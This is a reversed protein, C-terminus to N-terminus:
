YSFVATNIVANLQQEYLEHCIPLNMEAVLKKAVGAQVAFRLIHLTMPATGNAFDHLEDIAEQNPQTVFSSDCERCEYEDTQKTWNLVTQCGPCKFLECIFYPKFQEKLEDMFDTNFWTAAETLDFGGPTEAVIEIAPYAISCCDEQITVEAGCSRCLNM